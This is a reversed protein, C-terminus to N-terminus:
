NFAKTWTNIEWEMKHLSTPGPVFFCSLPSVICARAPISYMTGSLNETERKQPTARDRGADVEHCLVSAKQWAEEEEEESYTQHHSVIYSSTVSHKIIHCQTHHHSVIYSSTVSYPICRLCCFRTNTIIHCKTHHHSVIYSSTICPHVALLLLTGTM